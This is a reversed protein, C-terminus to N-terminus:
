RGVGDVIEDVLAFRRLATTVDSLRSPHDPHRHLWGLFALLRAQVLSWTIAEGAQGPAQCWADHVDRLENADAVPVEALFTALDYDPRAFGCDDFDIVRVHSGDILVNVPRIDAHSLVLPSPADILTRWVRDRRRILDVRTAHDLVDLAAFGGWQPEPGVLSATSWTFRRFEPSPSFRVARMSSVLQGLQEAVFVVDHHESLTTGPLWEVLTAIRGDVVAVQGGAQTAEAAAIACGHSVLAARWELESRVSAVSQYGPRSWRLVRRGVPTEVLFSVNEALALVEVHDIPVSWATLLSKAIAVLEDTDPFRVAAREAGSSSASNTV